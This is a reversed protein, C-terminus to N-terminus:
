STLVGGGENVSYDNQRRPRGCVKLTGMLPRAKHGRDQRYLGLYQNSEPKTWVAHRYVNGHDAGLVRNRRHSSTLVLPGIVRHCCSGGMFWKNLTM